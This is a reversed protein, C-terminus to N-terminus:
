KRLHQGFSTQPHTFWNSGVAGSWTSLALITHDGQALIILALDGEISEASNYYAVTAERGDRQYRAIAAEVFARTQAAAAEDPPTTEMPASATIHAREGIPLALMVEYGVNLPISSWHGIESGDQRARAQYYGNGASVEVRAQGADDTIASWEYQAARGTISRSLEVTVGSVPAGDQQVTALVVAYGAALKGLPRDPVQSQTVREGSCHWLAGAVLAFALIHRLRRWM